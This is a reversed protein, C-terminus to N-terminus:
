VFSSEFQKTLNILEFRKLSSNGFRMKSRRSDRNVRELIRILRKNSDRIAPILNTRTVLWQTLKCSLHLLSNEFRAAFRDFKICDTHTVTDSLTVGAHAVAQWM